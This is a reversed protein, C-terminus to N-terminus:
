RLTQLQWEPYKLGRIVKLAFGGDRLEKATYGIEKLSEASYGAERFDQASFTVKTMEHTTHVNCNPWAM